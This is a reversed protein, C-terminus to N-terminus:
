GYSNTRFPIRHEKLLAKAHRLDDQLRMNINVESIYKAEMTKLRLVDRQLRVNDEVLRVYSMPQVFVIRLTDRDDESIGQRIVREVHAYAERSARDSWWDSSM